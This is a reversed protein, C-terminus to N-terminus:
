LIFSTTLDHLVCCLVSLCFLFLFLVVCFCFFLFTLVVDCSVCCGVVCFCCCCCSFIDVDGHVDVHSRRLRMCLQCMLMSIFCLVLICCLSCVYYCIIYLTSCHHYYCRLYTTISFLLESCVSVPISIHLSAGFLLIVLMSSLQEISTLITVYAEKYVSISFIPTLM